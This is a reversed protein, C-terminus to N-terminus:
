MRRALMFRNPSTSACRVDDLRVPVLIKREMAEFMNVIQGSAYDRLRNRVSGKGNRGAMGVYVIGDQDAIVYVGPENPVLGTSARSLSPTQSHFGETSARM